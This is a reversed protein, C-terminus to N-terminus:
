ITKVLGGVAFAQYLVDNEVDSGFCGAIFCCAIVSLGARTFRRRLWYWTASLLRYILYIGRYM